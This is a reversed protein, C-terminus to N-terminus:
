GETFAISGGEGKTATGVTRTGGYTVDIPMDLSGGGEGGLSNPKVMCASYREAFNGTGSGKTVYFHVILMDLNCLAQPNQELVALNYIKSQAEDGSDLEWPDFSQTVVPKKMSSHTQGLIDQSTDDSWDYEQSSDTTRKGLPSWVPVESTGTNLYAILLERAITEGSTTNFKYDAM